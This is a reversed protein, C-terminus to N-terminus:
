DIFFFSCIVASLSLLCLLPKKSNKLDDDTFTSNRPLIIIILYLISQIIFCKYSSNIKYKNSEESCYKKICKKCKYCRERKFQCIPDYGRDEIQKTTIISEDDNNNNNDNSM